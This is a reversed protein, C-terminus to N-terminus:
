FTIGIMKIKEKTVRTVVGKDQLSNLSNIVEDQPVSMLNSMKRIWAKDTNLNTFRRKYYQDVEYVQGYILKKM